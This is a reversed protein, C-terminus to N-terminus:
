CYFFNGDNQDIVQKKLDYVWVESKSLCREWEPSLKTEYM